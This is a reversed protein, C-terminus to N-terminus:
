FQLTVGLGWWPCAEVWPKLNRLGKLEKSPKLESICMCQVSRSSVRIWFHSSVHPNQTKPSLQSPRPMQQLRAWQQSTVANWLHRHIHFFCLEKWPKRSLNREGQKGNKTWPCAFSLSFLSALKQLQTSLKAQSVNGFNEVYSWWRSLTTGHQAPEECNRM